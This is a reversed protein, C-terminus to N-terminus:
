RYNKAFAYLSEAATLLTKSYDDDGKTKYAIAGAALAAATGAAIDSGQLVFIAM